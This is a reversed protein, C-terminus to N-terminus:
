SCRGVNDTRRNGTMILRTGTLLHQSFGYVNQVADAVFLTQHNKVIDMDCQRKVSHSAIAIVHSGPRQRGLICSEDVGPGHKIQARAVADTLLRWSTSTKRVRSRTVHNAGPDYRDLPSDYACRSSETGDRARIQAHARSSDGIASGGPRRAVPVGGTDAFRDARRDGV